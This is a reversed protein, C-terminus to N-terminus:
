RAPGVDASSLKIKKGGDLFYVEKSDLYFNLHHTPSLSKSDSRHLYIANYKKIKEGEKVTDAEIQTYLVEYTKGKVTLRDGNKLNRLDM